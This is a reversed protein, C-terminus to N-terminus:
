DIKGYVQGIMIAQFDLDAGTNQAVQVQVHTFPPILLSIEPRDGYRDETTKALIITEGNFLVKVQITSGGVDDFEGEVRFDGVWYTGGTTFDLMTTLSSGVAITGSFAYAHKGIINLNLGTSATNQPGYGVGEPM